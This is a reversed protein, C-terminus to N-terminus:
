GKTKGAKSKRSRGRKRQDIHVKPETVTPAVIVPEIVEVVEPPEEELLYQLTLMEADSTLPGIRAKLFAKRREAMLQGMPFSLSNTFYPEGFVEAYDAKIKEFLLVVEERSRQV